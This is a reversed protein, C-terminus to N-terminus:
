HAADYSQIEQLTPCDRHTILKTAIADFQIKDQSSLQEYRSRSLVQVHPHQSLWLNVKQRDEWVIGHTALEYADVDQMTLAAGQYIIKNPLADLKVREAISLKQYNAQSIVKVRNNKQWHEVRGKDIKLLDSATQQAYANASLVGCVIGLLLPKKVVQM